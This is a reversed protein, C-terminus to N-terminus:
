YTNMWPTFYQVFAGLAAHHAFTSQPPLEKRTGIEDLAPAAEDALEERADDAAITDRSTDRISSPLLACLLWSSRAMETWSTRFFSCADM